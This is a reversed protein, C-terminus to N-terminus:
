GVVGVGCATWTIQLHRVDESTQDLAIPQRAVIMRARERHFFEDIASTSRSPDAKQRSNLFVRGGFEQPPGTDM